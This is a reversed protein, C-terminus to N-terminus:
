VIFAAVLVPPKSRYTMFSDRSQPLQRHIQAVAGQASLHQMPMPDALSPPYTPYVHLTAMLINVQFESCSGGQM